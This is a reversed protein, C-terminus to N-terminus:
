DQRELADMLDDMVSDLEELDMLWDEYGEDEEDAPEEASRRSYDARAQELLKELEKKSMKRLSETGPYDGIM